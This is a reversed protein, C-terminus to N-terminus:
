LCPLVEALSGPFTGAGLTPCSIDRNLEGRDFLRTGQPPHRRVSFSKAKYSVMHEGKVSIPM